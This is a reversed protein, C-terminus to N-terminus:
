AFDLTLLLRKQGPNIGPSRHLLGSGENGKWSEGKLLAVDGTRMRQIHSSHQLLGSSEDSLGNSGSGLKSRDVLEHPAWETAPGAYSTVLRCPVRDVHFKPCMPTDLVKLRLGVADLDFLCAFMDTLLAIDELLATRHEFYPLQQALQQEADQAALVCQLQSFTEHALIANVSEAIAVSHPRQWLAINIDQEYISAWITPDYSEALRYKPQTSPTKFTVRRPQTPSSLLNSALSM